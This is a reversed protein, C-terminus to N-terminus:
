KDNRNMSNCDDYTVDGSTGVTFFKTKHGSLLATATAASDAIQFDITYTKALGGYDLKEMATQM